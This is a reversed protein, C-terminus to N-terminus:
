RLVKQYPIDRKRLEAEAIDLEAKVENARVQLYPVAPITLAGLATLLESSTIRDYADFLHVFRLKLDDDGLGAYIRKLKTRDFRRVVPFGLRGRTVFPNVSRALRKRRM